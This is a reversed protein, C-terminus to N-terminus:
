APLYLRKDFLLGLEKDVMLHMYEMVYNSCPIFHPLTLLEPYPISSFEKTMSDFVKANCTRHHIHLGKLSKFTRYCYWCTTEPETM